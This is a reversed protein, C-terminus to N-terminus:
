ATMEKLKDIVGIEIFAIGKEPVPVNFAQAFAEACIHAINGTRVADALGHPENSCEILAVFGDDRLKKHEPCLEYHTATKHEFTPRLRKDLLLNGTDHAVGCVPCIAQELTVYSKTM